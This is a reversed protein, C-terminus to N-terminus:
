LNESFNLSQLKEKVIQELKNFSDKAPIENLEELKNELTLM